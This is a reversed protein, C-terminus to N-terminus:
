GGMASMVFGGSAGVMIAARLLSFLFFDAPGSLIVASNSCPAPLMASYIVTFRILFIHIVPWTGEGMFCAFTM